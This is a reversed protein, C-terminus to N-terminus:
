DEGFGVPFDGEELDRQQCHRACPACLHDGDYHVTAPRKKCNECPKYTETM